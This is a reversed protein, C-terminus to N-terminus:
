RCYKEREKKVQVLGMAEARAFDRCAEETKNLRVLALGRMGYALPNTTDISISHNLDAVAAIFDGANFQSYGRYTYAGPFTENMEITKDFYTTAKYFDKLNYWAFGLEFYLAPTALGKDLATELDTIAGNYDSTQNKVKARNTYTKINSPSIELAKNFDKLADEWKGLKAFAMGRNNFAEAFRPELTIAKNFDELAEEPKGIADSLLGRNNLIRPNEPDLSLAKNFDKLAALPAAEKFYLTGRNAWARSHEPQVAIARNFDDLAGKVDGKELRENGRSNLAPYVDPYRYLIDNLLTMSDKWVQVRTFTLYTLSLTLIVIIYVYLSSFNQKEKLWAVAEGMLFFLGISSIYTYRDAIIYNSVPVWRLFVFINVLFFIMGFFLIRNKLFSRYLLIALGTSIVLSIIAFVLVVPQSIDPVPYYASLGVPILLKYLYLCFSLAAILVTNWWPPLVPTDGMYGTKQQAIFAIIGFLLAILFYPIKNIWTRMSFLPKGHFYDLILLCLPLFVAQGKSFVSLLFALLSLYYLYTKKKEAYHAYLLLSLLFYLSYLVDKRATAWAVAEVHMPHICFLLATFGAVLNKGSLKRILYFVLITNFIHLILNHLHFFVPNPGFFYYDWSLSLLTLPHYHGEFSHSFILQLNLWTIDQILPNKSIYVPDDWSVFGNLFIASYAILIIIVLGPLWGKALYNKWLLHKKIM